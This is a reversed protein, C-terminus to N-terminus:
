AFSDFLRGGFKKRYFNSCIPQVTLCASFFRSSFARLPSFKKHLICMFNQLSSISFKQFINVGRRIKEEGGVGGMIVCLKGKIRISNAKKLNFYQLLCSQWKKDIVSLPDCGHKTQADHSAIFFFSLLM